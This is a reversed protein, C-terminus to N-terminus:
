LLHRHALIEAATLPRADESIRRIPPQIIVEQTLGALPEQKFFEDSLKHFRLDLEPPISNKDKDLSNSDTLENVDPVVQPTEGNSAL